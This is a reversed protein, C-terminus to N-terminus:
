KVVMMPRSTKFEPTSLVVYYLTSPFESGSVVIEATHHGAPLEAHLVTAIANGVVDLIRLQVKGPTPMSFRLTAKESVPNPVVEELFFGAGSPTSTVGPGRGEVVIRAAATQQSVCPTKYTATYVGTAFDQADRIILEPGSAGPILSGDKFWTIDYYKAAVMNEITLRIEGGEAVMVRASPELARADAGTGLMLRAADGGYGHHTLLLVTLLFGIYKM